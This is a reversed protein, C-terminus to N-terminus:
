ARHGLYADYEPIPPTERALQELQQVMPLEFLAQSYAQAEPPLAVGYTRFRTAVPFFMCDAISFDGLLFPGGSSTLSARWIDLVRAIDADIAPSKPTQAARARLNMTMAERLAAFSGHMECSIARGRARLRADAPWLRAAPALEAVYECIALSEHISLSGDVLIPVKGAGSFELIRERWDAQTKLGIDHIKFPLGAHMLALWPRVSWSSYNLNACVLRLM